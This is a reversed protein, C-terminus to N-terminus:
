IAYTWFQLSLRVYILECICPYIRFLIKATLLCQFILASLGKGNWTRFRSLILLLCWSDPALWDHYVYTCYLKTFGIKFPYPRCKSIFSCDDGIYFSFLWKDSSLNYFFSSDSKEMTVFKVGLGMLDTLYPSVNLFPFVDM